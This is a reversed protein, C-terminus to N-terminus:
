YLSEREIFKGDKYLEVEKIPSDKLHTAFNVIYANNDKTKFYGAASKTRDLVGTAVIDPNDTWEANSSWMTLYYTYTSDYTSTPSLACTIAIKHKPFETMAAVCSRDQMVKDNLIKEKGIYCFGVQEDYKYTTYYLTSTLSPADVEYEAMRLTRNDSDFTSPWISSLHIWFMDLAMPTQIMYDKVGEHVFVSDPKLMGNKLRYAHAYTRLGNEKTKEDAALYANDICRSTVLVYLPDNSDQNNLITYLKEHHDSFLPCYDTDKLNYKRRWEEESVAKVDNSDNLVVICPSAYGELSDGTIYITLKHDNSELKRFPIKSNDINKECESILASIDKIDDTNSKSHNDKCGVIAVSVIASVLFALTLKGTKRKMNKNLMIKNNMLM